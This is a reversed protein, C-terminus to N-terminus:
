PEILNQYIQIGYKRKGTSPEVSPEPTAEPAEDEDFPGALPIEFDEIETYDDERVVFFGIVGFILMLACSIFIASKRWKNNSMNSM